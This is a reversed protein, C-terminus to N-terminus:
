RVLRFTASPVKGDLAREPEDFHEAVKKMAAAMAEYTIDIEDKGHSLTTFQAYGFLVGMRLCEQWFLGAQAENKFMFKTRSPLGICQVHARLGNEASLANFDDKLRQGSKWIRKLGNSEEMVKLTAIAASIGILDGGYTSSVFCNGTLQKMYEAKGGVASISYGNGMAKGLCTLDPIVGFYKQASYEKTRFATVVEDFVLLANNSHALDKVAELYGEKPEEFVYPEMVVAAIPFEVHKGLSFFDTLDDRNNYKFQGSYRRMGKPIGKKKSTTVAYADHWGNYGCFVVGENGTVARAIRIAASVAESGTKLLRVMECSPILECLKESLVSESKNPLSFLNGKEITSHVAKNVATNSYGVLIAGLACPYDIYSHGSYDWVYAGKGKEIYKPYVGEVHRDPRKSETQVGNPIIKCAQEFAATDSDVETQVASPEEVERDTSIDSSLAATVSDNYIRAM